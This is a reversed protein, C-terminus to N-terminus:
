FGPANLLALILGVGYGTGRENKSAPGAMDVHLWGGTYDKDLHSEIFHGACSTQANNRDKVSNKMDAVKSNFEEKLIEPAYLLPYTLDGSRLGAAVAQQELEQTNALIGAHKKGTAVLQAGTLTAMDVVLNLDPIHKTAHAVGDGLVLRGEADCNNVEVTKGSYLTLIDDNRFATPGIANEALCLILVLKKDIGLKVASVFGGLMGASGGMDHKMGCMGVKPKLSLGGTDYIIGKGVLAVTQPTPDNAPTYEMIVLRPPCEAAKGVGYLGGYGAKNLEDGVIETMTVGELENAIERCKAAYVETTLEAPPMDVLEAALQVGESVVRAAKLSAENMQVTGTDDLYSVQISRNNNNSTKRSYLPFAKAVASALAGHYHSPANVFLLRTKGKPISSVLETVKHTSMEHNNRTVTDPLACLMFQHGKELFTSASGSNGDISNLMAEFTEKDANVLGLCSPVNDAIFDQLVSKKGVVVTADTDAPSALDGFSITTTAAALSSSMTRIVFIRTPVFATCVFKKSFFSVLMSLFHLQQRMNFPFTIFHHFPADDDHGM